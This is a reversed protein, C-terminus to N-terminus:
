ETDMKERIKSLRAPKGGNFKFHLEVAKDVYAKFEKRFRESSFRLASARIEAPNFSYSISEFYNVARILDEISQNQFFLGNEGESVIEVAAGKNLAIVPTGCSLAEVVAIGFPEISPFLFARAKKLYNNVNERNLFGLFEINTHARFKLKPLEPGDGIIILKKNPMSNFADVILDIRKCPVLRSVIVYYDEKQTRLEFKSVDVPPYIVESDRGYLHAIRRSMYGSNALYINARNASSSDWLRIYHLILKALTGKIGRKLNGDKLYQHYLDWAYIMTGNIYSIHLQESYTLVGHAVAHSSSIILDYASLDFQEIALPMLPLYNRYKKRALPMKQLFSTKTPKDLIFGRKDPPIFDYLTFIDADPFIKVIEELVREAGGYTILWDHIIATRM